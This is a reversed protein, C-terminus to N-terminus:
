SLIKESQITWNEPLLDLTPVPFCSCHGLGKPAHALVWELNGIM